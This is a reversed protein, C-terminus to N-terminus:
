LSKYSCIEITNNKFFEKVDQSTLVKLELERYYHYSTNNRLTDDDIGPHTMIDLVEDTYTAAIKLITEFNVNEKYFDTVLRACVGAQYNNGRYKLNYKKAIRETIPLLLPHLHIHHHSDFHTLNIDKSVKDIQACWEIFMQEPDINPTGEDPFRKFNGNADVLTSNTKTLPKGYTGVLHIGVCLDPNEHALEVAHEYALSNAMLTTSRVVGNKFADIIALNIGETLGFDDANFIMKM